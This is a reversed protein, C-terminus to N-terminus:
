NDLAQRIRCSPSFTYLDLIDPAEALGPGGAEAWATIDRSAEIDNM